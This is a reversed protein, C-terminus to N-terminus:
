GPRGSCRTWRRTPLTASVAASAWTRRGAPGPGPGARRGAQAPDLRRAIRSFKRPNGISDLSLLCVRTAEDDEWYQMVDNGTMDAYEGTSIFSSLGLDHRVAHNLLAIASRPRSASCASAVPGRCRGRRPTSRSGRDTNIVGLADPGLARIGYARALNVVTRNDEVPSDTGTLVVMAHAGKHAADIVVGGLERTPVSVVALDIRGPVTADLERDPRRRGRQRRHEGGHHRGPFWRELMSNVLGQVRAGPGLVVVREPTLLRRMSASEARHERREMVGVSTNTPLIPFEM